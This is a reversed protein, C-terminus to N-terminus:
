SMRDLIVFDPLGSMKKLTQFKGHNKLSCYDAMLM